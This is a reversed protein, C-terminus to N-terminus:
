SPFISLEYQVHSFDCSNDSTTIRITRSKEGTFEYQRMTMGVPVYPNFYGISEELRKWHGNEKLLVIGSNLSILCQTNESTLSLHALREESPIALEVTDLYPFHSTVPVIKTTKSWMAREEPSNRWVAGLIVGDRKLEYVPQLFAKAYRYRYLHDITMGPYTLELLYEGNQKNLDNGDALYQIDPRVYLIPFSSGISVLTAFSAHKPAHTNLWTLLDKYASGYTNGVLPFGMSKAGSLGGILENYYINEYPHLVIISKISLLFSIVFVCLFFKYVPNSLRATVFAGGVGALLAFFPYFEMIQRLSAGYLSMLPLTARVLPSVFLFFWLLYVGDRFALKRLVLVSGVLGLGLTFLPITTIFLLFPQKSSCLYWQGSFPPYSCPIGGVQSIEQYYHVVSLFGQVPRGWISPFSLYFLSFAIFGVMVTTVIWSKWKKLISRHSTTLEVILWPLLSVPLFLINFKTGLTMGFPIASLLLYRKKETKIAKYVFYTTLTLLSTVTPDKINFHQEAFLLPYTILTITSIIAPVIGGIEYAWLAVVCALIFTFFVPVIHYASIDDLLGSEVFFFKNSIAMVIDMLPPHGITLQDAWKKDLPSKDFISVRNEYPLPCARGETHASLSTDPSIYCVPHVQTSDTKGTLIYRLYIQGRALHQYSDWNVGYEPILRVSILFSALLIFLICLTSLIPFIKARKNKMVYKLSLTELRPSLM